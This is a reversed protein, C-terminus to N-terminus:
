KKKDEWCKKFSHVETQCKRWDRENEGMCVELKEYAEKCGTDEIIAEIDVGEKTTVAGPHKQM